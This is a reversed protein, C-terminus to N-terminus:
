WRRRSRVPPRIRAMSQGACYGEHMAYQMAVTDVAKQLRRDEMYWRGVDLVLAVVLVGLLLVVAFGIAM